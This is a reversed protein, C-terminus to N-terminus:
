INTGRRRLCQVSEYFSGTVSVKHGHTLHGGHDLRMGMIKGGKSVLAFYVALNAPSGSLAQVNVAWDNENLSFVELVRKQTLLELEDVIENGGYYRANPYGEAYKNNFKSGLAELVDESVYNESAILNIVSGQREDERKILDEIETDKM